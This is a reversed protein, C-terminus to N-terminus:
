PYVLMVYDFHCTLWLLYPISVIYIIKMHNPTFFSVHLFDHINLASGM